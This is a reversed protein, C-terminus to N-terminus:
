NETNQKRHEPKPQRNATNQRISQVLKHLMASIHKAEAVLKQSQTPHLQGTREAIYLQTRLEAASGKAINLFRIFDPGSDREAGEAINSAVSVASRTIQDKLGYDHCTKFSDYITVALNCATKWVKLDEFSHYPM